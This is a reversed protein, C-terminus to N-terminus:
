EDEVHEGRRQGTPQAVTQILLLQKDTSYSETDHGGQGKVAVPHEEELEARQRDNQQECINPKLRRGRPKRVTGRALREDDKAGNEPAQGGQGGDPNM